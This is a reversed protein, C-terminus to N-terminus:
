EDFALKSILPDIELQLNSTIFDKYDAVPDKRAFYSLVEDVNVIENSQGSLYAPLSSWSYQKLQDFVGKGIFRFLDVPNLHIYRSLHVLYEEKYVRKAKFRGQYIPGVTEYKINFYKAHSNCLNSFFSSIAKLELQQLLFHFHNPMLCFALIRVPFKEKYKVIKELFREYDREELFIQQKRSGRNYIHYYGGNEFLRPATAM